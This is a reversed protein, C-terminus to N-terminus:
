RRLNNYITFLFPQTAHPQPVQEPFNICPLYRREQPSIITIQSDPQYSWVGRERAPRGARGGTVGDSTNCLLLAENSKRLWGWPGHCLSLSLPTVLSHLLGKDANEAFSLPWRRCSRWSVPCHFPYAPQWGYAVRGGAHTYVRERMWLQKM